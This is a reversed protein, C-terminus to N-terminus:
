QAKLQWAPQVRTARWTPYLGAITTAVVALAVAIAVDAADFHALRNIEDSLLARLGFLGLSTLALGLLGGALGVVSAEILCQAFIAWRSAGLARRVAIDGSRGMIKALMLGMANLLCVFLFSFSVLVLIRAEDSVAHQYVLWERVDRIRTHPQWSFRGLKRQESVYNTLWSRYGAVDAATPLEVWYQIWVCESHIRGDWGSGVNGDCNFNGFMRMHEDIATTFPLFLQEAEGYSDNM